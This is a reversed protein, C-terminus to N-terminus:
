SLSSSFDRWYHQKTVNVDLYNLRLSDSKPGMSRRCLQVKSVRESYSKRWLGMLCCNKSLLEKKAEDERKTEMRLVHVRDSEDTREAVFEYFKIKEHKLERSRPDDILALTRTTHLKLADPKAM